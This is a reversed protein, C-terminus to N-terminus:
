WRIIVKRRGWQRAAAVDLGMYIDIKQRWRKHMKDRVIYEGTLGQIMVKTGRTLGMDLLDRSVAIAKMGPKLTEGWATQYPKTNTQNKISNYARAIVELEHERQPQKEDKKADTKENEACSLSFIASVIIVGFRFGGVVKFLM